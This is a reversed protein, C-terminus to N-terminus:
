LKDIYAKFKYIMNAVEARTANQMPRFTKDEYGTIVGVSAINAVSDKAYESIYDYDAFDVNSATTEINKRKLINNFIVVIDQRTIYEGIGFLNSGKGNVVGNQYAAMVADYYWASENVDNFPLKADFKASLNLMRSILAVFEERTIYNDPLYMNNGNGTIIKEKALETIANKAWCNSIDSFIDNSTNGINQNISPNQIGGSAIGGVNVSNNNGGSTDDKKSNLGNIDKKLQDYSFGTYKKGILQSCISNIVREAKLDQIYESNIYIHLINKINEYGDPEAIVEFLLAAKFANEFEEFSNFHQNELRKVIGKQWKLKTAQNVAITGDTSYWNFLQESSLEDFYMPILDFNNVNGKSLMYLIVSKRFDKVSTEKDSVVYGTGNEAKLREKEKYIYKAIELYQEDTSIELVEDYFFELEAQNNKIVLAVAAANDADNIRALATSSDKSYHLTKDYIIENNATVTLFYNGTEALVPMNITVNFNGNADTKLDNSYILSAAAESNDLSTRDESTINVIIRSSTAKDVQGSVTAKRNNDFISVEVKGTACVSVSLITMILFLIVTKKM